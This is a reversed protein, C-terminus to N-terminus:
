KLMSTMVQLALPDGQLNVDAHERSVGGRASGARTSAAEFGQNKAPFSRSREYGAVQDQSNSVAILRESSLGTLESLKGIVLQKFVGEPIKQILPMSLQSLTAKGEMADM